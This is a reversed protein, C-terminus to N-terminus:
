AKCAEYSKEANQIPANEATECDEKPAPGKAPQKMELARVYGYVLSGGISLFMGVKHSWSGMDDGFIHVALFVVAVKSANQLVQFSTATMARQCLIGAVGIFLGMFASMIVLVILGPDHWVLSHKQSPKQFGEFEHTATMLIFTPVLGLSNNIVMCTSSQLDKCEQVLLRRQLVRDLIAVFTNFIVLGVGIWNFAEDKWSFLLAGVVMLGISCVIPTSVSPRHQPEMVVCEVAMTVLPALNRFVTMLTLSIYQFGILSSNLMAFYTFPVICWRLMQGRPAELVQKYDVCMLAVAAFAMQICTITSPMETFSVVAKNLTSMSVSTVSFFFGALITFAISTDPFLDKRSVYLVSLGGLILFAPGMTTLAAMTQPDKSLIDMLRETTQNTAHISLMTQNDRM